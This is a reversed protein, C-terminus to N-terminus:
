ILSTWSPPLASLPSASSSVIITGGSYASAIHSARPYRRRVSIFTPIEITNAPTSTNRARVTITDYTVSESTLVSETRGAAIATMDIAVVISLSIAPANTTTPTGSIAAAHNAPGARSATLPRRVIAGNRRSRGSQVNPITAATM